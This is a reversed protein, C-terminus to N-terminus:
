PHVSSCVFSVILDTLFAFTKFQLSFSTAFVYKHWASPDSNTYYSQHHLQQSTQELLGFPIDFM